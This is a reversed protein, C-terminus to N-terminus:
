WEASSCRTAAQRMARSITSRTPSRTVASIVSWTRIASVSAAEVAIMALDHADPMETIATDAVLVVRGRSLVLSAGM